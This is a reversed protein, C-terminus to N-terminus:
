ESKWPRGAVETVGYDIAEPLAMGSTVDEGFGFPVLGPRCVRWEQDRKPGGPEVYVLLAGGGYAIWLM